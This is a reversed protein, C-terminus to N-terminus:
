AAMSCSGPVQMLKGIARKEAAGVKGVVALYRKDSACGALRVSEEDAAYIRPAEDEPEVGQMLGCGIYDAQALPRDRLGARAWLMKNKALELEDASISHDVEDLVERMVRVVEVANDTGTTAFLSLLSTKTGPAISTGCDYVLGRSRLASVLRSTAGDGLIRSLLEVSVADYTAIGPVPLALEIGVSNPDKGHFSVGSPLLKNFKPQTPRGEHWTPTGFDYNKPIAGTLVVAANSHGYHSMFRRRLDTVTMAGVSAKTGLISKANPADPGFALLRIYHGTDDIEGTADLDTLQEELVVKRESEINDFCPAEFLELLLSLAEKRSEKPADIHFCTMDHSTWANLRAGINETALDHQAKSHRVTGQFLMHELFHSIGNQKPTEYASGTRLYIAAAVRSLHSQSQVIIRPM